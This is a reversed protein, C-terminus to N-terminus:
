KTTLNKKLINKYHTDSLPAYAVFFPKYKKYKKYFSEWIFDGDLKKNWPEILKIFHDLIVLTDYNIEGQLVLNLLEPSQNDKCVILEGFNTESLKSLDEALNHSRAQQWKIWEKYANASEDLLLTNSWVTDKKTFLVAYFFPLEEEKYMRAIKHFLYKDKKKEFAELSVKTKGNYKFYDYNETTFHLRVSNFILFADYGNM